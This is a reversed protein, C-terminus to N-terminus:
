DLPPSRGDARCRRRARAFWACAAARVVRECGARQPLLGAGYSLDEFRNGNGEWSLASRRPVHTRM